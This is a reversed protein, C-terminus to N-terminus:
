IRNTPFLVLTEGKVCVIERVPWATGLEEPSMWSWQGTKENYRSNGQSGIEGFRQQGFGVWVEDGVGAVASIRPNKLAAGTNILEWAPHRWRYM